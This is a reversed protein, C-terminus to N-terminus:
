YSYRVNLLGALLHTFKEKKEILCNPPLGKSWNINEGEQTAAIHLNGKKTTMEYMTKIDRENKPQFPLQGCAVEYMTAGYSWYEYSQNFMQVPPTEFGLRSYYYKAFIDPHIYEFTGYLSGYEENKRLIKAAGFDGLKYIFNGSVDQSVMINAPKIDRHVISKQNLHKLANFFQGCFRFFESSNLGDPQSDIIKSLDGECCYEMALAKGDFGIIKELGLFKVVNEHNCMGITNAEREIYSKPVGSFTKVVVTEASRKAFGKFFDFLYRHIFTFISM